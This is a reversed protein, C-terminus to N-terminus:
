GTVKRLCTLAQQLRSCEETSAGWRRLMEKAKAEDMELLADLTLEQPIEQVVEPRVNFIYLWDSFRPYSNLEATRDSPTVSLKSQQQKCIYKVLKAELTRIEQQTLDNSVSCKTRLGRLSGISIDILKQLQGCQQLARSVAAGAGGDMHG